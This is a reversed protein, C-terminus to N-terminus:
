TICTSKKGMIYELILDPKSFVTVVNVSCSEGIENNIIIM